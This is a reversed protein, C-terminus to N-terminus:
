AVGGDIMCEMAERQLEPSAKQAHPDRAALGQAIVELVGDTVAHRMIDRRLQTMTKSYLTVLAPSVGAAEAVDSRTVSMYGAKRSLEVAARLIAERRMDKKARKVKIPANAPGDGEAKQVSLRFTQFNCGMVADFSGEPLGSRRCVEARSLNVIGEERVLKRAIQMINNKNHKM